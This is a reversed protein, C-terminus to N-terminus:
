MCSRAATTTRVPISTKLSSKRSFKSLHRIGSTGNERPWTAKMSRRRALGAILRRAM